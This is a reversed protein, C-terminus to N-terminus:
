SACHWFTTTHNKFYPYDANDSLFLSRHAQRFIGAGAWPHPRLRLPALESLRGGYRTWASATGFAYGEGPDNRPPGSWATWTIRSGNTRLGDWGRSPWSRACRDWDLWGGARARYKVVDSEGVSARRVEAEPRLAGGGLRELNVPGREVPTRFDGTRGPRAEPASGTGPRRAPPHMAGAYPSELARSLPLYGAQSFSRPWCVCNLVLVSRGM